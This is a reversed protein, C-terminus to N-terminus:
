ILPNILLLVLLIVISGLVCEVMDMVIKRKVNRNGIKDMGEVTTFKSCDSLFKGYGKGPEKILVIELGQNKEEITPRFLRKNNKRFSYHRHNELPRKLHISAAEYEFPAIPGGFKGGGIAKKRVIGSSAVNLIDDWEIKINKLFFPFFTYITLSNHDLEAYKTFNISYSLAAGILFFYYINFFSLTLYRSLIFLIVSQFLCFKWEGSDNYHTIM